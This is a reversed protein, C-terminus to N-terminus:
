SLPCTQAGRLLSDRAGEEYVDGWLPLVIRVETLRLKNKTNKLNIDISDILYM